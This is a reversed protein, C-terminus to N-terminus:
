FTAQFQFRLCGSKSRRACTCAEVQCFPSYCAVDDCPSTIRSRADHAVDSCLSFGENVIAVPSEM